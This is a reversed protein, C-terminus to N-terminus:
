FLSAQSPERPVFVGRTMLERACYFTAMVDNMANHAGDFDKQFLFRYLEELRPSKFNGNKGPLMCLEKTEAMTDFTQGPLFNKNKGVRELEAEIVKQDFSINHAVAVDAEHFIELLKDAWEAFTPKGAVMEDTIKHVHTCELPIAVAPKLLQDVKRIPKIKRNELDVDITLSAFQCIYPQEALGLNPSPFGTTETDFIIIKM